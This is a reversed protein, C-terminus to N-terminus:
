AKSLEPLGEKQPAGKAGQNPIITDLDAEKMLSPDEGPGSSSLSVVLGSLSWGLAEPIQIM